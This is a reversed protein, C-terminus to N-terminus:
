NENTTNKNDNNKVNVKSIANLKSDDVLLNETPKHRRNFDTESHAGCGMTVTVVEGDFPSQENCCVGFENRLSGPLHIFFGCTTCKQKARKKYQSRGTKNAWRNKAREIGAQSPVRERGLGLEFIAFKDLLPDGSSQTYGPTLREDYDDKPTTINSSIKENRIKWSQWPPPLLAGKKPMLAVESVTIPSYKDVRCLVVVWNWDLYGKHKCTYYVELANESILKTSILKGITNNKTTNRLNLLCIRKIENINDFLNDM